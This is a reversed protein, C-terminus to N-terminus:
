VTTSPNIENIKKGLELIDPIDGGDIVLINVGQDKHRQQHVKKIETQNLYDEVFIQEWIEPQKDPNIQVSYISKTGITHAYIGQRGM